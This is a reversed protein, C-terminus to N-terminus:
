DRHPNEVKVIVEFCNDRMAQHCKLCSLTMDNFAVMVGDMNKAKAKKAITEAPRRFSQIHFEYENGKFAHLFDTYNSVAILQKAATEIKGFDSLAIGELIVQSSKLKMEMADKRSPFKLLNPEAIKPGLESKPPAPPEAASRTGQIVCPVTALFAVLILYHKM